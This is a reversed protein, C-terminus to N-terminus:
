KVEMAEVLGCAREKVFHLRSWVESLEDLGLCSLSDASETQLGEVLSMVQRIRWEFEVLKDRKNQM